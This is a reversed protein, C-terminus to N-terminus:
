WFHVHYGVQGSKREEHLQVWGIHKIGHEWFTNELNCLFIDTYDQDHYMHMMKMWLDFMKWLKKDLAADYCAQIMDLSCLACPLVHEEQWPDPCVQPLPLAHHLCLPSCGVPSECSPPTILCPCPVSSFVVFGSWVLGCPTLTFCLSSCIPWSLLLCNPLYGIYM